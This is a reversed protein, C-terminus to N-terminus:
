AHLTKPAVIPRVQLIYIDEGVVAWEIDLPTGWQRGLALFYSTLKLFDPKQEYHHVVQSEVIDRSEKKIIIRDPIQTGATIPENSGPLMEIRFTVFKKESTKVALKSSMGTRVSAM